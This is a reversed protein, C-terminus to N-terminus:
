GHRLDANEGAPFLDSGPTRNSHICDVSIIIVRCLHRPGLTISSFANKNVVGAVHGRRAGPLRRTILGPLWEVTDGQIASNELSGHFVIDPIEQIGVADVFQQALEALTRPGGVRWAQGPGLCLEPLM